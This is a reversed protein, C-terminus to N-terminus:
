LRQGLVITHYGFEALRGREYRLQLARAPILIGPREPLYVWLGKEDDREAPSGLLLLVEARSMGLELKEAEREVEAFEYRQNGRPLVEGTEPDLAVCGALTLLVAALIGHRALPIPNSM